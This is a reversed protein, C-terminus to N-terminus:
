CASPNVSVMPLVEAKADALRVHGALAAPSDDGGTAAVAESVMAKVNVHLTSVSGPQPATTLVGHATVQSRRLACM